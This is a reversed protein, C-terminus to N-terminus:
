VEKEIVLISCLWNEFAVDLLGVQLICCLFRMGRGIKNNYYHFFIESELQSRGFLGSYASFM